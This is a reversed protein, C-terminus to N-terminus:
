KLMDILKKEYFANINIFMTDYNETYFSDIINITPLFTFPDINGHNHNCNKIIKKNIYQNRYQIKMLHTPLRSIVM